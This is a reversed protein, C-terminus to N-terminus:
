KKLKFAHGVIGSILAQIGTAGTNYEVLEVGIAEMKQVWDNLQKLAEDYNGDRALVAVCDHKHYADEPTIDYWREDYLEPIRDYDPENTPNYDIYNDGYLFGVCSRGFGVEGKEQLVIKHENAFRQLNEIIEKM